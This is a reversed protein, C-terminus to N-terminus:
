SAARFAAILAEAEDHGLRLARAATAHAFGARALNGLERRATEAVPPKTRWPGM